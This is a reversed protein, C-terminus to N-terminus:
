VKKYALLEHAKYTMYVTSVGFAILLGSAIINVSVSGTYFWVTLIIIVNLSAIIVSSFFCYRVKGLGTMIHFAPVALLSLFTGVLMIRLAVPM